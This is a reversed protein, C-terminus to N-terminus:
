ELEASIRDAAEAPSDAQTIPRGIVMYDVGDRVADAPTTIRKQDNAAAWAPRIGPTVICFEEGCEARVATVEQPSCVVGDAGNERALAAWFRVQDLPSYDIRVERRLTEEDISTLVTVALLLPKTGAAGEALGEVAAAIMAGGGAAHVNLMFVGLGAAARCAGRVTNPIDHYKLDLFVQGGGTVIDRVVDPGTATFLEKGIKFAGVHGTLGGALGAAKERSDVDLAVIIRESPKLLV